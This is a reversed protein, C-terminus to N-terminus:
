KKNEKVTLPRNTQEKKDHHTNDITHREADQATNSHKQEKFPTNHITHSDKNDNHSPKSEKTTANNEKKVTKGNNKTTAKHHERQWEMRSNYEDAPSPLDIDLEPIGREKPKFPIPADDYVSVEVLAIGAALIGLRRAAEYSLDIVRGRAHPGRDIVKVIVEKRNSPNRVNLLTGFPHTRHACVLSDNNLRTGSSTRSGNARRSYYSAKGKQQCLSPLTITLLLATILAVRGILPPLRLM